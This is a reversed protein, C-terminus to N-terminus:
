DKPPLKEKKTKQSPVALYVTDIVRYKRHQEFQNTIEFPPQKVRKTLSVLMLCVSISLILIFLILNRKRNM